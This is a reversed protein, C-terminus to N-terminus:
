KDLGFHELQVELTIMIIDVVQKIVKLKLNQMVKMHLMQQDVHIGVMALYKIQIEHYIMIDDYVVIM